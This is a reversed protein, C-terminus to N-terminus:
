VLMSHPCYFNDYIFQLLKLLWLRGKFLLDKTAVGSCHEGNHFGHIVVKVTCAEVTTFNHSVESLCSNLLKTRDGFWWNYSLNHFRGPSHVRVALNVTGATFPNKNQSSNQYAELSAFIKEKTELVTVQTSNRACYERYGSRKRNSSYRHNYETGVLIKM